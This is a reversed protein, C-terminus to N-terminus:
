PRSIIRDGPDGPSAKAVAAVARGTCLESQDKRDQVAQEQEPHDIGTSVHPRDILEFPRRLDTCPPRHDGVHDRTFQAGLVISEIAQGLLM